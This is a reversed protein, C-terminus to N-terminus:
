IASPLGEQRSPLVFLHAQGLEKRIAVGAPLEGAFRVRRGLGLDVARAELFPRYLGDGVLTLHLDIGKRVSQAVAGLLVDPAKYLHGLSGVTVLFRPGAPPPAARPEAAFAEEPLEVESFSSVYAGPRPPYRRQLAERTIYAAATARS